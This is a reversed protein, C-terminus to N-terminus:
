NVNNQKSAFGSIEFFNTMNQIVLDLTEKCTLIFVDKATPYWCSIAYNNWGSVTELDIKDGNDFDIQDLPKRSGADDDVAPPACGSSRIQEWYSM